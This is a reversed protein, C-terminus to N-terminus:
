CFCACPHPLLPLRQAGPTAPSWLGVRLGGAAAHGWEEGPRSIGEGWSQRRQRRGKAAPTSQWVTQMDGPLPPRAAMHGPHVEPFVPRRKRPSGLTAPSFHCSSQGPAAQLSTLTSKLGQVRLALQSRSETDKGFLEAFSGSVRGKVAYTSIKTQEAQLLHCWDSGVEM